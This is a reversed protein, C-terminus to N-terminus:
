HPWLPPWILCTAAVVGITFIGFWFGTRLDRGSLLKNLIWWSTLWALFGLTEKGSYPGIEEAGPIWLKGLAHVHKVISPFLECLYVIIGFSLMGVMAGLFAAVASGSPLSPTSVQLNHNM